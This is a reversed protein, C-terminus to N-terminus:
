GIVETHSEVEEEPFDGLDRGVFYSPFGGFKGCPLDGDADFLDFGAGDEPVPEVAECAGLEMGMVGFPGTERNPRVLCPSPAKQRLLVQHVQDGGTHEIDTPATDVGLHIDSDPQPNQPEGSGWRHSGLEQIGDLSDGM